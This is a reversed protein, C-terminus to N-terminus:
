LNNVPTKIRKIRYRKAYKDIATYCDYSDISVNIIKVKISEASNDIPTLIYECDSLWEVKYERTEKTDKNIHTQKAGQRSIILNETEFRGNKISTCDLTVPIEINDYKILPSLKAGKVKDLYVLYGFNLLLVMLTFSFSIPFTTIFKQRYKKQKFPILATLVGLVVSVMFVIFIHSSLLIISSGFDWEDTSTFQTHQLILHLILLIGTITWLMRQRM